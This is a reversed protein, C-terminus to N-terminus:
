KEYFVITMRDNIVKSAGTRRYGLKEYLHCNKPEQLITGLSWGEAGHRAEAERVAAQAVGRNQFDPLVFLPSIRKRESNQHDVVRIGGVIEDDQRILYYYTFPQSLKAQIRDLPECAPSTDFDEYVKLLPDFAIRQLAQILPVDPLAARVLQFPM